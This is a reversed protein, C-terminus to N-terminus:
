SITLTLKIVYVVTESVVVPCRDVPTLWEGHVKEESGPVIGEAVTM